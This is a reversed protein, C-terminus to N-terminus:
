EQGIWYYKQVNGTGYAGGSTSGFGEAATPPTIGPISPDVQAVEYWMSDQAAPFVKFIGESILQSPSSQNLVIEWIEDFQTKEMTYVGEFVLPIGGQYATVEYSQDAYFNAYLSDDFGSSQLIFSIDYASWKGIIGLENVDVTEKLDQSLANGEAGYVTNSKVTIELMEDGDLRDQYEITIVVVPDGAVHAATYQAQVPNTGVFTLEFSSADINGTMDNNAYMAQNFTITLTQNDDSLELSSMAVPLGPNDDDDDNCATFTLMLAAIMLLSLLKVNKMIRSNKIFILNILSNKFM